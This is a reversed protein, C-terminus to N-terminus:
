IFRQIYKGGSWYFVPIKGPPVVVKGSRLRMYQDYTDYYYDPAYIMMEFEYAERINIDHPHKGTIKYLTYLMSDYEQSRADNAEFLNYSRTLLRFPLYDEIFFLMNDLFFRANDINEPTSFNESIRTGNELENLQEELDYIKNLITVFINEWMEIYAHDYIWVMWKRIVRFLKAFGALDNVGSTTVGILDQYCMAAQNKKYIIYADNVGSFTEIQGICPTHEGANMKAKQHPRVRLNYCINLYTEEKSFNNNYFALDKKIELQRAMEMIQEIMEVPLWSLYTNEFHKHKLATKTAAKVGTKSMMYRSNSFSSFWNFHITELFDDVPDYLPMFNIDFIYDEM